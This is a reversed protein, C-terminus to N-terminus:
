TAETRQPHTCGVVLQAPPRDQANLTADPHRAERLKEHPILAIATATSANTIGAAECCLSKAKQATVRRASRLLATPPRANIQEIKM